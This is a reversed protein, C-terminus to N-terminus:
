EVGDGTPTPVPLPKKGKGRATTRHAIEFTPGEPGAPRAVTQGPAWQEFTRVTEYLSNREVPEKGAGRILGVIQDYSMWMPTGAGAEHYVREFVM